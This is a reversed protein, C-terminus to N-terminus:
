VVTHVLLSCICLKKGQMCLSMDYNLKQTYANTFDWMFDYLRWHALCLKVGLPMDKAYGSVGQVHYMNKSYKM